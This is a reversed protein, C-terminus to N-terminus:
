FFYFCAFDAMGSEMYLPNEGFNLLPFVELLLLGNM